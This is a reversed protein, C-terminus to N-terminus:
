RWGVSCRSPKGLTVQSGKGWSARARAVVSSIKKDLCSIIRNRIGDKGYGAAARLVFHIKENPIKSRVLPLEGAQGEM